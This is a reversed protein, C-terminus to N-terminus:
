HMAGGPEAKVKHWFIYSAEKVAELMARIARPLEDENAGRILQFDAIKISHHVTIGTLIRLSSKDKSLDVERSFLLNTLEGGDTVLFLDERDGVKRVHIEIKDDNPFRWDTTILFGGGTPMVDWGQYFDEVLGDFIDKEDLQVEM